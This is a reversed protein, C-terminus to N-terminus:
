MKETSSKLAKYVFGKDRRTMDAQQKATLGM